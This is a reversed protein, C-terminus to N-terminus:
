PKTKKQQGTLLFDSSHEKDRERFISLDLIHHYAKTWLDTTQEPKRKNRAQM